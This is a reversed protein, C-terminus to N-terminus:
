GGPPGAVWSVGRGSAGVVAGTAVSPQFVASPFAICLFLFLSAASLSRAVSVRLLGGVVFFPPRAFFEWWCHGFLVGAFFIHASTMLFPAILTWITSPFPLRPSVVSVFILPSLGPPAACLSAFLPSFPSLPATPLPLPPGSCVVLLPFLPPCIPFFPLPLFSSLSSGPTTAESCAPSKSLIVHFPGLCPSLPSYVWLRLMHLSPRLTINLRGAKYKGKQLLPSGGGANAVVLLSVMLKEMPDPNAASM